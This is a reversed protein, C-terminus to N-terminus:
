LVIGRRSFGLKQAYLLPDGLGMYQVSARALSSRERAQPGTGDHTGACLWTWPLDQGLRDAEREFTACSVDLFRFARTMAAKGSFIEALTLYSFGQVTAECVRM